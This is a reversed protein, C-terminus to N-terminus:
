MHQGLHFTPGSIRLPLKAMVTNRQKQGSPFVKDRVGKAHKGSKAPLPQAEVVNQLLMSASEYAQKFCKTLIGGANHEPFPEFLGLLLCHARLCAM